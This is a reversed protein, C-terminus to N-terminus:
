GSTRRAAEKVVATGSSVNVAGELRGPGRREQDAHHLVVCGGSATMFLGCGDSATRLRRKGDCSTSIIEGSRLIRAASARLAPRARSHAQASAAAACVVPVIRPLTVSAVVPRGM